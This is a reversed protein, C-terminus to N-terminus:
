VSSKKEPNWRNTKGLIASYSTWGLSAVLPVTPLVLRDVPTWFVSLFLVFAGIVLPVIYIKRNRRLCILGILALIGLFGIPIGSPYNPFYKLCIRVPQLTLFYKLNIPPDAGPNPYMVLFIWELNTDLHEKTKKVIHSIGLPLKTTWFSPKLEEDWYVHYSSGKGYGIYGSWFNQTSHLLDGYLILNRGGM